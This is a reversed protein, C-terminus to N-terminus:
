AARGRLAQARERAAHVLKRVDAPRQEADEVYFAARYLRDPDDGFQGLGGNCNFCLIGRVRGTAHDHDVHEPDQRGCIACAGLQDRVLADFEAAGIGYRHKLHYHRNGGYLRQKSEKGRANHCPKCYAHRGDKM